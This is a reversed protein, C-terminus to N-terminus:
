GGMGGPVKLWGRAFTELARRIEDRSWGKSLLLNIMSQGNADVLPGRCGRCTLKYTVCLASCGGTTVPGLCLARKEKLACTNEQVRCEFCVSKDDIAPLDGHLLSGLARLLELREVPCGPLTFDVQIFDRLPRADSGPRCAMVGGFAACTGMAVLVKATERIRLLRERDRQHVVAGEVLAVDLDASPREIDVLDYACLDFSRSLTFFEDECNLLAMQDGGCSTLSFVGLALKPEQNRGAEVM